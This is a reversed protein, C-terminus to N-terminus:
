QGDTKREVKAAGKKTARAAKHVGKKTGKAVGKGAHKAARGTEKGAHKIDRGSEKLESKATQGWAAFVGLSSIVLAILTKKVIREGQFNDKPPKGYNSASLRSKGDTMSMLNSFHFFSAMSSGAVDRGL